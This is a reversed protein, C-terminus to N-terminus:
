KDGQVGQVNNSEVLKLACNQVEQLESESMNEGARDYGNYLANLKKMEDASPNSDAIYLLCIGLKAYNEASIKKCDIDEETLIEIVKSVKEKKAVAEYAANVNEEAHSCSIMVMSILFLGTLIIKKM